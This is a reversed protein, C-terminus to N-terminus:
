HQFILITHLLHVLAADRRWCLQFHLSLHIFEDQFNLKVIFPPSRLVKLLQTFFLKYVNLFRLDRIPSYVALM